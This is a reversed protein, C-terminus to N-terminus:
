REFRLMGRASSLVLTNGSVTLTSEGSLLRTYTNEFAMTPCAARTCALLPGATLKQGSLEFAGTCTNCDARASLRGDAFTLAYRAGAPATQSPEGAPQVSLLNWSGSLDGGTLTSSNNTSEPSTPTLTPQSCGAAVTAVAILTLFAHLKM